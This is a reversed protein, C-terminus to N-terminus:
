PVPLTVIEVAALVLLIAGVVILGLRINRLAFHSSIGIIFLVSALIVTSRVYDDSTEAAKEGATFSADAQHDLVAAVPGDLPHYSPMSQPGAPANPNTFPRTAIWDTFARRLQPSFRREAVAILTKDKTAYAGLWANFTLGDGVRFTLSEQYARNAKTRLTAAHALDLSSKTAFKAASFGSWAAVLTVISLVAAEAISVWRDRAASHEHVTEAHESLGKAAEAASLGEAVECPDAAPSPARRVREPHDAGAQRGPLSSCM